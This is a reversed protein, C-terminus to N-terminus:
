KLRERAIVGTESAALILNYIDLVFLQPYVAFATTSIHAVLLGIV